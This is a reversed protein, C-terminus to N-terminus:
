KTIHKRYNRTAIVQDQIALMFGETEPFLEGRRLWANSASKDVHPQSLDARHRGHLSKQSWQNIKEKDLSCRENLQTNKDHLNLPTLKNDITALSSYLSLTEAKKHFFTRLTTIQRNHLNKIDILGRGGEDRSLVLRQVCSKPHHKRFKTMSTNITRQLTDLETQSWTIIGFSYTLISIAYTNIAKILNKSSLHTNLLTKLRQKFKFKLQQKTQKQLLQRAQHFGLYKYSSEENMAEIEEGTEVLYPNQQIKGREISHVKCKDIGFQM